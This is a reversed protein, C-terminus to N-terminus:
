ASDQTLYQPHVYLPIVLRELVQERDAPAEYFATGRSIDPQAVIVGASVDSWGRLARECQDAIAKLAGANRRPAHTLQLEVQVRRAYGGDDGQGRWDLIRLVGYPLTAHDPAQDIYLKGDSGAGDLAGLLAAGSSGGSPTYTLLRDRIAELTALQSDTAM